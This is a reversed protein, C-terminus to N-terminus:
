RIELNGEGHWRILARKRKQSVTKGQIESWRAADHRDFSVFSRLKFGCYELHMYVTPSLHARPPFFLYIM